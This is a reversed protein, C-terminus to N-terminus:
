SPRARRKQGRLAGLQDAVAQFRPRASPSDALCSSVIRQLLRPVAPQTADPEMRELLDLAFLGFARVEMAEWFREQPAYCYAAGVCPPHPTIMNTYPPSPPPLAPLSAHPRPQSALLCALWGAPCPALLAPHCAPLGFLSREGFDCLM